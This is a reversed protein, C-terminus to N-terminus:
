VQRLIGLRSLFRAMLPGIRPIMEFDGKDIGGIILMVLLYSVAGIAISVFTPLRGLGMSRVLMLYVLKIIVVMAASAALPRGFHRIIGLPRGTRRAVDALNLLAVVGFGVSTSIGAGVINLAPLATLWYELGVKILSGIVLNKVPITVHGMGQLIAASTQLMCLFTAAPALSALVRGVDARGYVLGSIESSLVYLGVGAPVAIIGTLRTVEDARNAVHGKGGLASSESIAPVVSAALALTLVNPFYVLPMAMGNLQGFFSTAAEPGFGALGLRAPVIASDIARIIPLVSAGLAVPISITFIRGAITLFREDSRKSAITRNLVHRRRYAIFAAILFIFSSVGGAVAGFAAGAAAFELGKPLLTFALVLMTLVRVFQELVQSMASPGMNQLGQFYGRFASAVTVFFLAPAIARIALAVRPDNYIRNSLWDAGLYMVFTFILGTLVMISLSVRLVVGAGKQDGVATKEAVLKSIALPLGAVSAVLFFNYVPQALELLGMGEDGIVNALPIRYFAGLIRSAMGAMAMVVAGKVFKRNSVDPM